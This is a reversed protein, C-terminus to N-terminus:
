AYIKKVLPSLVEIIKNMQQLSAFSAPNNNIAVIEKQKKELTAIKEFNPSSNNEEKMIERAYYSIMERVLDNALETTRYWTLGNVEGTNAVSFDNYNTTDKM